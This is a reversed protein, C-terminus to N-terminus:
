VSIDTFHQDNYDGSYGNIIDPDCMDLDIDSSLVTSIIMVLVWGLIIAMAVLAVILLVKLFVM